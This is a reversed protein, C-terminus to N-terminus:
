GMAVNMLSKSRDSNATMFKMNAEYMRQVRIMNVLERVMEVNSSEQYGQRVAANTVAQPRVSSDPMHFCHKGAPVLKSRDEGFEVIRLKGVEAGGASIVGENSVQVTSTSVTDPITIPGQEGAVIRGSTDVLQGTANVQLMGNRTYLEGEPTQLVFFGDGALALDLGGGSEIMHGQSFDFESNVELGGGSEMQEALSQAFSSSRRKFGVTNVNALNHTIVEFERMLANLSGQVQNSVSM